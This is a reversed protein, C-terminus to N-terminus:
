EVSSLESATMSEYFALVRPDALVLSSPASFGWTRTSPVPLPRRLFLGDLSRVRSLAVYAQGFEFVRALDLVAADFALGQSKHISIAWALTLPLQRRSALAADAVRVTFEEHKIVESVGSTFRVIPLNTQSTFGEVVGRCGNVLGAAANITKTLMVKAHETFPSLRLRSDSVQKPLCESLLLKAVCEQAVACEASPLRGPVRSQGQYM